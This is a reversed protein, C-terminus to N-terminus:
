FALASVMLKELLVVSQVLVAIEQSPVIEVVVVVVVVVM